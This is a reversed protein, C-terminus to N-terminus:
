RCTPVREREQRFVMAVPIGVAVKWDKAVVAGEIGTISKRCQDESWSEMQRQAQQLAMASNRDRAAEGNGPDTRDFVAITARGNAQIQEAYTKEFKRAVDMSRGAYIPFRRGCIGLTMGINRTYIGILVERLEADSVCFGGYAFANLGSICGLLGLVAYTVFRFPAKRRMHQDDWM